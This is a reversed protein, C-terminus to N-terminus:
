ISSKSSTNLRTHLGYPQKDPQHFVLRPFQSNGAYNYGVSNPPSMPLALESTFARAPCPLRHYRATANLSHQLRTLCGAPGSPSSATTASDTCVPHFCCRHHIFLREFDDLGGPYPRHCPGFSLCLLNPFSQPKLVDRVFAYATASGWLRPHPWLLCQPRRVVFGSASGLAVPCACGHRREGRGSQVFTGRSSMPTCPTRFHFYGVYLHRSSRRSPQRHLSTQLRVPSFEGYPIKSPAPSVPAPIPRKKGRLDFSRFRQFSAIRFM